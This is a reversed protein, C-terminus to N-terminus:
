MPCSAMYPGDPLQGKAVEIATRFPGRSRYLPCASEADPCPEMDVADVRMGADDYFGITLAFKVGSMTFARQDSSFKYPFIMGDYEGLSDRNRLGQRKQEPTDAVQVRLCRVGVAIEREEWTIEQADAPSAGSLLPRDALMLMVLAVGVIAGALVVWRRGSRDDM